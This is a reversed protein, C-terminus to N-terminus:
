ETPSVESKVPKTHGAALRFSPAFEPDLLARRDARFADIPYGTAGEIALDALIKGILSAFKAAHGAGIGILVRPHGPARDLIFDRDPPMDYICTKSFLVPGLASPLRDKLFSSVLAAEESNPVHSRSQQTVFRGSMDRAAKVALEENVPFGYFLPNGHWIWVPFRDPTFEGTNPTAFYSVQEQSLTINWSLGLGPLLDALWSAACLIVSEATFSGRSTEVTVHWQSSALRRVRTDPMIEVGRARSLSVHAATARRIDLIGGEEQYLAFVDDGIRWQPWRKRIEPADLEESVVGSAELARRSDDLEAEGTTGRQALDLGGTREILKLGTEAEVEEWADYAARTLLSYDPSHYTHRIIRSRDESAGFGHGIPFQELVLVDAGGSQSLWFATASGLAGAGVVIYDYNRKM